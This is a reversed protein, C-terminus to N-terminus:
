QFVTATESAFDKLRDTGGDAVAKQDAEAKDHVLPILVTETEVFAEGDGVM